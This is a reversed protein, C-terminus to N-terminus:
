WTIISDFKGDSAPTMSRLRSVFPLGHPAGGAVRSSQVLPSSKSTGAHRAVAAVEFVQEPDAAGAGELVARLLGGPGHRRQQVLGADLERDEAVALGAGTVRGAADAVLEDELLQGLLVDLREVLAPTFFITAVQGCQKLVRALSYGCSPPSYSTTCWM